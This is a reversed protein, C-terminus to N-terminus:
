VAEYEWCRGIMRIGGESPPSPPIFGMIEECVAEFERLVQDNTFRVVRLGYGELVKTREADYAMGDRTFHGEGDVEIVLKLKPCYFDVIFNDIPKQRWMKLPFTRLFQWLKREAPTPNKRMAKAQETLKENYPLFYKGQKINSM